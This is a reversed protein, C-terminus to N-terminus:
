QIRFRKESSMSTTISNNRKRYFYFPIGTYIIKRAKCFVIPTFEVDEFCVGEHFWLENQLLFLRKYVCRWVVSRLPKYYQKFFSVGDIPAFSVNAISHIISQRNPVNDTFEWYDGIAIDVKRQEACDSIELLKDVDIYDDSDVFVVYKGTAIKLGTNRAASLGKNEHSVVKIPYKNSWIEIIKFSSDTSGDNVCIVEYKSFDLSMFCRLCDDLYKEVNYVPIIISLLCSM